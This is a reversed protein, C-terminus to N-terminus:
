IRREESSIGRTLFQGYTVIGSGCPHLLGLRQVCPASVRYNGCRVGASESADFLSSCNHSLIHDDDAAPRGAPRGRDIGRPRFELREHELAGDGFLIPQGARQREPLERERGFDLVIGAERGAIQLCKQFGRDVRVPELVHVDVLPLVGDGPGLQHLQHPLLRDVEARPDDGVVDHFDIQLRRGNTTRVSSPLCCSAWASIM